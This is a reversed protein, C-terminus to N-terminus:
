VRQKPPLVVWRGKTGGPRSERNSVSVPVEMPRYPGQRVIKCSFSYRLLCTSGGENNLKLNKVYGRTSVIDFSQRVLPRVIESVEPALQTGACLANSCILM